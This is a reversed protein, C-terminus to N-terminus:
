NSGALGLRDMWQALEREEENGQAYGDRLARHSEPRHQNLKLKCQLETVTLEFAMIGSLMKRAFEEGL